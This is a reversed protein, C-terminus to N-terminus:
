REEFGRSLSLSSQRTFTEYMTQVILSRGRQIEGHDSAFGNQMAFDNVISLAWLKRADRAKPRVLRFRPEIGKAPQRRWNPICQFQAKEKQTKAPM